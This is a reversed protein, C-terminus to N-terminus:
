WAFNLTNLKIPKPKSGSNPSRLTNGVVFRGTASRNYILDSYSIDSLFHTIANFEITELFKTM